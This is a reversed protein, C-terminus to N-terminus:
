RDGGMDDILVQGRKKQILRYMKPYDEAMVRQWGIFGTCPMCGVRHGAGDAYYPNLPIGLVEHAEFVEEESWDMIPHAHWVNAKKAYYYDGCRRQLMWRARSEAATLGTLVCKIGLDKQKKRLPKEKLYYCCAPQRRENKRNEGGSYRKEPLGYKEALQFFTGDTGRVEHYNLNWEGVLRDRFKLTEPAEVGTNAFIVAIQPYERLALWLVLTSDKGFSCSVSCKDPGHDRLAKRVRISALEVKAKLNM